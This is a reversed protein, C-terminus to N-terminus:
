LIENLYIYYIAMHIRVKHINILMDKMKENYKFYEKCICNKLEFRIDGEKFDYNCYCCKIFLRKNFYDM